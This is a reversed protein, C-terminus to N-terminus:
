SLHRQLLTVGIIQAFNYIRSRIRRLDVEPMIICKVFSFVRYTVRVEALNNGSESIKPAATYFSFDRRADGGM